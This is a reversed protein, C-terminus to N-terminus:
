NQRQEIVVQVLNAKHTHTKHRMSALSPTQCWHTQKGFRSLAHKQKLSDYWRCWLFNFTRNETLKHSRNVREQVHTRVFLYTMFCKLTFLRQSQQKQLSDGLVGVAKYAFLRSALSWSLAGRLLVDLLMSRPSSVTACTPDLGWWSVNARPFDLSYQQGLLFQGSVSTCDHLGLASLLWLLSWM